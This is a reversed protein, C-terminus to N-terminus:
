KKGETKRVWLGSYLINRLIDVNEVVPLREFARAAGAAMMTLLHRAYADPDPGAAATLFPNYCGNKRDKERDDWADALYIFKGLYFGVEGLDRSWIDQERVFIERMMEGTLGAALEIDASNAAEAAHLRKLYRRVAGAQRPYAAATKAYAKKLAAASVYGSLKKEDRWDDLLNHYVLLLNMDAAYATSVSRLCPQKAGGRLVCRHMEEKETEEYVSDLLIALFTMDYTLTARALEGCRDKLDRCLGCYWMRYRQMDKGKLEAPDVTIYGFM